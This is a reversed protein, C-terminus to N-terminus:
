LSIYWLCMLRGL